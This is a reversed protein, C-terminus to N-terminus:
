TDKGAYEQKGVSVCNYMCNSKKGKKKQANQFDCLLELVICSVTKRQSLERMCTPPSRVSVLASKQWKIQVKIKLEAQLDVSNERIFSIKGHQEVATAFKFNKGRGFGSSCCIQSSWPPTAFRRHDATALSQIDIHSLTQFIMSFPYQNLTMKTPM